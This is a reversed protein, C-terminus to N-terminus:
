EAEVRLREIQTTKLLWVGDVAEYSDYYFGYGSFRAFPVGAPNFFRDSFSWIGTAATASTVDIEQQHGQHVTVINAAKFAGGAWSDRGRLVVNMAPLFDRGSAPDTCCGTYDLVCDPHLISRVLDDDSRDVGRWYRAKLTRIAEVAALRETETM